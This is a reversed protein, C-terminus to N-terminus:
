NLDMLVLDFTGAPSAFVVKVAEEGTAAVQVRCGAHRLISALLERVDVVDDVVLVDVDLSGSYPSDSKRQDTELAPVVMASVDVEGADVCLRFISGKGITSEADIHGGLKEALRQSITLGLGTGRVTGGPVSGQVFPKFIRELDSQVIGMGTDHVAFCLLNRGSEELFTVELTVSGQETFKIANGLLNLLIQRLRTEDSCITVPLPNTAEIRLELGKRSAADGLVS